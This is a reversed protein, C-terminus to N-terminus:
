IYLILNLCKYENKYWVNSNLKELRQYQFVRALYRWYNKSTSYHQNCFIYKINWQVYSYFICSNDYFMNFIDNM